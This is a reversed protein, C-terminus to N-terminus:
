IILVIKKVMVSFRNFTGKCMLHSVLMYCNVLGLYTVLLHTKVCSLVRWPLQFKMSAYECICIELIDSTLSWLRSWGRGLVALM